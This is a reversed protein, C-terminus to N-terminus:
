LFFNAAKKRATNKILFVNFKYILKSLISMKIKTM